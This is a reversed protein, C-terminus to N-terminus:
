GVVELAEVRAILEQITAVLLPVVKAQDIGQMDPVSRTAMVQATTERWQQGDELTEPQEVDSSHIVELVEAIAESVLQQETVEVTEAIAPTVEYSETIPVQRTVEVEVETSVGDIDHRQVETVTVETTVVQETTEVITEGALNIYSGTEITETVNRESMVAEVADRAHVTIVTEYVADVRTSGATYIDGTAPTVEYEEDKMADKTGTAAAPIVEQLEHALFGDVRTGDAIWEFNVPNLQMFTATAGTMPQVDTKLRHDSLTGYSTASGTVSISGVATADRYFAQIIGNSSNRRLYLPAGGSATIDIEGAAILNIGTTAFDTTSKGVIVAGATDVVVRDAVGNQTLQFRGTSGQAGMSWGNPANSNDFRVYSDTAGSNSLHVKTAPSSTGIGVNGGRPNILFPLTGSNTFNASQLYGSQPSNLFGFMTGMLGDTRSVMLGTGYGSTPVATGSDNLHLRGQPSSNGIGVNGSSGIRMFEAGGTLWRYGAPGSHTLDASAVATNVGIKYEKQAGSVNGDIIFGADENTATNRARIFVNNSSASAATVDLSVTAAPAAGIGVSGDYTIRMRELDNTGFLLSTGRENWVIANRDDGGGSEGADFANGIQLGKTTYYGGNGGTNDYMNFQANGNIELRQTPSSNNIGVNGNTDVTLRTSGNTMIGLKHNSSTGIKGIAAQAQLHVSAGSNRSVYVDGNGSNAVTLGDATITGTVDVGTNTTTLKPANGYRLQAAGDFSNGYFYTLNGASNSLYLSDGQLLLSGTGADKVHSNTGSHFIQLDNSAGFKSKVGDGHLTDGTMTGGALPLKTAISNTVTTSFNADDGLASALENLTDLAAPSSDVLNSIATDVYTEQAYRADSAVKTYHDALAFTGFAQIYVVDSVSAGVDLVVSLGNTATYDTTALLIGNLYVDVYGADYTASFTTQGATAIHQVSNEVGNVSSGANAWSAGNYVKMIDNTTDFWLDGVSPSSPASAQSVYQGQFSAVSTNVGSASSAANTASTAAQSAKTTAIGAQTTATAAKTTATSASSAANTESTAAANKSSLAESAKTTATSASGSASSASSASASASNSANTESIAADDESSQASTASSSASSASSSAESAKTTATSASNTASTAKTTATTASTSANAAQTSATTASAAAANKSATSTNAQTTATAASNSSSTASASSASASSAAASASSAAGTESIAADDESSQADSASSSASTASSSASSASATASSQSASAANQSVLAAAQATESHVEALEAAVKATVANTEATEAHTEALEANTEATEANTEATEAHTEALEAAVQATQAASASSAAASASSAANSANTGSTTVDNGTAIRDLGTQVKDAEASVVDAHTLVVDANTLALNSAVEARDAEASVVDANTAVRDLGTQVKDAEASVVDAHTLVVDANTTVVDAHTTVVDANTLVVDANTTVVDANTAVRDLGTQVKDAEALVVDANTAVRDLGTQVKDAEASVVDANTSVVDAATSAKDATTIVVDANTTVVDANTSVVDANTLVLDAAAASASASANSESVLVSAASAASATASSASAGSSALSASASSAAESAKTTATSASSAASSESNSANTESTSSANESSLANSESSAAASASTGANTESTGANTESTAANTKSTLASAAESASSSASSSSASASAASNAASTESATASNASNTASVSSANQSALADVASANANTAQQTVANLSSDQTSDGSGGTGRFIAM